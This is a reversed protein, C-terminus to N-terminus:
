SCVQHQVTSSVLKPDSGRTLEKEEGILIYEYSHPAFRTLTKKEKEKRIEALLQAQTMYADDNKSDMCPQINSPNYDHLLDRSEEMLQQYVQDEEDTDVISVNINIRTPIEIYNTAKKQKSTPNNRFLSVLVSRQTERQLLTVKSLTLTESLSSNNSFITCSSPLDVHEMLETLYLQIASPNVTFEIKMDVHLVVEKQMSINYAKLSINSKGMQTTVDKIALIDNERVIHMGNADTYENLVAVIKPPPSCSVLEEVNDFVRGENNEDQILGFTAASNLPVFYESNGNACRSKLVETEKVLHVSYIEDVGFTPDKMNDAAMFGNVVRIRFPVNLAHKEALETLDLVKSSLPPVELRQSVDGGGGSPLRKKRRLPMM